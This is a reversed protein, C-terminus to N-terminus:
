GLACLEVADYTSSKSLYPMAHMLWHSNVVADGHTRLVPDRTLLPLLIHLEPTRLYGDSLLTAVDDYLIRRLLRPVTADRQGDFLSLGTIMEYLLCGFSWWDVRSTAPAATLMEPAMYEPTGVLTHMREEVGITCSDFNGIKAGSSEVVVISEPVLNRHVVKNEHLHILGNAVDLGFRKAMDVRSTYPGQMGFAISDLGIGVFSEYTVTGTVSDVELLTRINIHPRLDHQMLRLENLAKTPELSGSDVM